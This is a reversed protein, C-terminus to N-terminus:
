AVLEVEILLSLVFLLYIKKDVMHFTHILDVWLLDIVDISDFIDKDNGDIDIAGSPLLFISCDRILVDEDDINKLEKLLFLIAKRANPFRGDDTSASRDVIDEFVTDDNFILISELVIEM